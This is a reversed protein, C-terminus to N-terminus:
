SEGKVIQPRFGTIDWYEKLAERMDDKPGFCYGAATLNLYIESCRECFFCSPIPIIPGCIDEELETYPNRERKFELCDSGIDILVHCSSCRKRRKGEFTILDDPPYYWWDGPESPEYDDPCSCSLM